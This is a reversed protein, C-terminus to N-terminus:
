PALRAAHFRGKELLHELEARGIRGAARAVASRRGAEAGHVESAAGVLGFRLPDERASELEADTVDVGRVGVAVADGLADDATRQLPLPVFHHEGGLAPETPDVAFGLAEARRPDFGGDVLAEPAEAGVPDVDIVEVHGVM